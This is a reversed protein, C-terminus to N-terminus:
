VITFYYKNFILDCDKKFDQETKTLHEFHLINAYDYYQLLLEFIM